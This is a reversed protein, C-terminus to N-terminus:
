PADDRRKGGRGRLEGMGTGCGGDDGGADAGKGGVEDGLRAVNLVAM